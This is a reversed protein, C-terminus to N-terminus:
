VRSMWYEKVKQKVTKIRYRGIVLHEGTDMVVINGDVKCIHRINVLIGREIMIIEPLHMEELIQNITNREYYREKDTVIEIDKKVKRIYRIEECNIRIFRVNSKITYYPIKKTMQEKFYKMLEPLKREMQSKVIFHKARINLEYGALAMEAHSTLFVIWADEQRQRIYQALEIGTIQPMEIDLFYIDYMINDDLCFMFEQPSTFCTVSAEKEVSALLIAKAIECLDQNDDIIAIRM